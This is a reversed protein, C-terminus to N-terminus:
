VKFVLFFIILIGLNFIDIGSMKPVAYLYNNGKKIENNILLGKLLCNASNAIIAIIFIVIKEKIILDDYAYNKYILLTEILSLALGTGIMFLLLILNKFKIKDANKFLLIAGIVFFVATIIPLYNLLPM